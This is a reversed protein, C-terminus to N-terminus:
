NENYFNYFKCFRDLEYFFKYIFKSILKELKM